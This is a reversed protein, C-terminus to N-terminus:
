EQRKAIESQILKEIELRNAPLQDIVIGEPRDLSISKPIEGMGRNIIIELASKRVIGKESPDCAMAELMDFAWKCKSRAYEILEKTETPRGGPNGSQGKVFKAM